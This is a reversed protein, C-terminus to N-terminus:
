SFCDVEERGSGARRQSLVDGAVISTCLELLSANRKQLQQIQRAAESRVNVGHAAPAAKTRHAQQRKRRAFKQRTAKEAELEEKKWTGAILSVERM